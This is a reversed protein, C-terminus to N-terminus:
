RRAEGVPSSSRGCGPRCTRWARRRRRRGVPRGRGRSCAPLRDTPSWPRSGPRGAGDARRRRTGEGVGRSRHERLRQREGGEVPQEVGRPLGPRRVPPRGHTPISNSAGASDDRADHDDGPVGSSSSASRIRTRSRRRPSCLGLQRQGASGTVIGSGAPASRPAAPDFAGPGDSRSSGIASTWIGPTSTSRVRTSGRPAQESPPGRSWGATRWRLAPPLGAHRDLVVHAAPGSSPRAPSSGPARSRVSRSPAPAAYATEVVTSVPPRRRAGPASGAHGAPSRRAGRGGRDVVGPCRRDRRDVAVRPRGPDGVGVVVVRGQRDAPQGVPGHPRDPHREVPLGGARLGVRTTSSYGPPRWVTSARRWRCRARRATGSWGARRGTRRRGASWWGARRRCGLLREADADALEAEAPGPQQRDRQGVCGTSMPQSNPGVSRTPLPARDWTPSRRAGALQEGSAHQRRGHAPWGPDLHRRPRGPDHQRRSRREAAHADHHLAPLSRLATTVGASRVRRTVPRLAISM